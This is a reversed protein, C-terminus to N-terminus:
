VLKFLKLQVVSYSVLKMLVARMLKSVPYDSAKFQKILFAYADDFEYRLLHDTSNLIIELCHCYPLAPKMVDLQCRYGRIVDEKGLFFGALAVDILIQEM